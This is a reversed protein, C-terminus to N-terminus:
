VAADVGTSDDGGFVLPEMLARELRTVIPEPTVSLAAPDMVGPKLLVTCLRQERDERQTEARLSENLPGVQGSEVLPDVLLENTLQHAQRLM